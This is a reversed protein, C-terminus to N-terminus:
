ARFRQLAQVRVALFEESVHSIHSHFAQCLKVLDARAAEDLGPVQMRPILAQPSLQRRYPFAATARVRSGFWALRVERLFKLAVAELADLPWAQFRCSPKGHTLTLASANIGGTRPKPTLTIVM